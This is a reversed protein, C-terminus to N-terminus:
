LIVSRLPGGHKIIIEQDMGLERLSQAAVAAFAENIEIAWMNAASTKIKKLAASIANAPQKYLLM